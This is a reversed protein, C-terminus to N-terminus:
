EQLHNKMLIGLGNKNANELAKIANSGYALLTTGTSPQKGFSGDPRIFKIKGSVFLIADSEKAAKQWWPASSRDPTLAVGDGHEHLKDLWPTIGNRKGFPPNMWVFGFWDIELSREHIFGLAPVFCKSIDKPAAVDQSFSVDMADFVYKPTYWEDSKGSSEWKSM